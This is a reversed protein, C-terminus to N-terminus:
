CAIGMHGNAQSLIFWIGSAMWQEECQETAGDVGAGQIPVLKNDMWNQAWSVVIGGVM